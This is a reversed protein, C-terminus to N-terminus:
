QLKFIDSHSVSKTRVKNAFSGLVAGFITMPELMMVTDYDILPRDKVWHRKPINFVNNGIGGGLITVNSLPIAVKGPAGLM